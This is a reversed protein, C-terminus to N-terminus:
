PSGLLAECDTPQVMGCAACALWGPGAEVVTSEHLCMGDKLETLSTLTINSLSALRIAGAQFGTESLLIGRDAGVDQVVSALAAVHLKSVSRRWWKCEIVWLQEIGARSTRVVVDVDHQGRAGTVREEVNADMGHARFIDAAREQYDRWATMRELTGEITSM